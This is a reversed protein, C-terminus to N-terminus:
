CRWGARRPEARPSREQGRGVTTATDVWNEAGARSADDDSSRTPWGARGLEHDERRGPRGPLPRHRVQLRAARAAPARRVDRLEHHELGSTLPAERRSLKLLYDYSTVDHGPVAFVLEGPENSRSFIEPMFRPLMESFADAFTYSCTRSRGPDDPYDPTITEVLEAGLRDRLM